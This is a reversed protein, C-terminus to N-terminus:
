VRYSKVLPFRHRLEAEAREEQALRDEVEQPYCRYYHLAAELQRRSLQPFARALAQLDEGCAKFVRVVEWVDIGSGALTARRGTPGEAFLIGPCRRQRLSEEILTSVVYSAPREIRTALSRIEGLIEPTLRLSFPQSKRM